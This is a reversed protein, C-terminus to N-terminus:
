EDLHYKDAIPCNECELEIHICKDATLCCTYDNTGKFKILDIIMILIFLIFCFVVLGGIAALIYLLIDPM